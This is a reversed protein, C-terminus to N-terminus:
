AVGPRPARWRAELHIPRLLKGHADLLHLFVDPTLDMPPDVRFVLEVVDVRDGAPAGPFGVGLLELVQRTEGGPREFAARTLIKVEPPAEFFEADPRRAFFRAQSNDALVLPPPAEAFPAPDEGALPAVLRETAEDSEDRAFGANPRVVLADAELLRARLRSRQFDDLGLTLYGLSPCDWRQRRLLAELRLNSDNYFPHQSLVYVLPPAAGAPDARGAGTLLTELRFAAGCPGPSPRGGPELTFGFTLAWLHHAAFVATLGAAALRLPRPRALSVARVVALAQIWMLSLFFKAGVRQTGVLLVAFSLLWAAGLALQAPSRVFRRERLCATLYSATALVVIPVGAGDLVNWEISYVANDVSFARDSGSQVRALDGYTVQWLYDRLTEWNVVYWPAAVAGAVAAALAFNVLKARVGGARLALFGFVLVPGAMAAGGMARATFTLGMALGFALMPGRRAGLGSSSMAWCAAAASAALAGEFLYVRSQNVVIPFTLLLAATLYPTWRESPYLNRTLRVVSYCLVFTFLPLVLEAAFRSEGLFGMVIASASPVLPTHTGSVHLWREAFAAPGGEFLARKLEIAHAYFDASEWAPVQRASGDREAAIRALAFCFLTAALSFLLPAQRRALGVGIRKL